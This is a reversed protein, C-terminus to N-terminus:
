DAYSVFPVVWAGAEQRPGEDESLGWAEGNDDMEEILFTALQAAEEADVAGIVTITGARYDATATAPGRDTVYDSAFCPLTTFDMKETTDM